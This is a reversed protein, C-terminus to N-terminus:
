KTEAPGMREDYVTEFYPSAINSKTIKCVAIGKIEEAGLIGFKISKIQRLPPEKISQNEPNEKLLKLMQEVNPRLSRKPEEKEKKIRTEEQIKTEEPVKLIKTERSKKPKKTEKSVKTEENFFLIQESM